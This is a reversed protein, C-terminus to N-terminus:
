AAPRRPRWKILNRESEVNINIRSQFDATRIVATRASDQEFHVDAVSATGPAVIRMTIAASSTAPANAHDYVVMIGRGDDPLQEPIAGVVRLGPASAERWYQARASVVLVHYGIAASRMALQVVYAVEGAVTVTSRAGPAAAALDVLLPHGKLTAGVIIGSAGIPAKIEEGAELRRHPATIAPTRAGALGARVGLDHRGSLPNLGTLPPQKQPGATAYRVLLGVAVGGDPAPRLQLATATYDTDPAWLRELASTSIDRPSVWYTSVWGNAHRVGGWRPRGADLGLGAPLIADIDALEEAAVVRAPLHRASLETALRHACADLTAALSDRCVVAAANDLSNMRLVCVTRRRGVAGHDAVHGSYTQAYHHHTKPARRRGVSLVDIGALTVDFQSLADAIVTVPLTAASQVRHNDLASPTHSPGDVAVVAVLEDGEARLAAQADTWRLRHDIAAPVARLDPATRGPRHRAAWRGLLRSLPARRWTVLILMVVLTATAAFVWVVWPGHVFTGAWLVAVAAVFATIVRMDRLALGLPFMPKM